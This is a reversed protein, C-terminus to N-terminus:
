DIEAFSRKENRAQDLKEHSRSNSNELEAVDSFKHKMVYELAKIADHAADSMHTYALPERRAMQKRLDTLPRNIAGVCFNTLMRQTRLPLQDFRADHKSHRGVTRLIEMKVPALTSRDEEIQTNREVLTSLQEKLLREYQETDGPRCLKAVDYKVMALEHADIEVNGKEALRASFKGKPKAPDNDYERGDQAAAKYAADHWKTRLGLLMALTNEDSEISCERNEDTTGEYIENRDLIEAINGAYEVLNTPRDNEPRAKYLSFMINTAMNICATDMMWAMSETVRANLRPHVDFHEDLVDMPTFFATGTFAKAM